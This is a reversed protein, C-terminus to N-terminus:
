ASNGCGPEHRLRFREEVHGRGGGTMRVSLWDQNALSSEGSLPEFLPVVQRHFQELEEARILCDVRGRFGPGWAATDDLWNADWFDSSGLHSRRHVVLKIRDSGDGGITVTELM